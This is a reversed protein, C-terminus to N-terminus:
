FLAATQGHPVFLPLDNSHRTRLRVDSLSFCGLIAQLMVGEVIREGTEGITREQEITEALGDGAGPPPGIRAEADKKEVNVAELVDVIAQTM